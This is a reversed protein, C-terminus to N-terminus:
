LHNPDLLWIWQTWQLTYLLPQNEFPEQFGLIQGVMKRRISRKFHYRKWRQRPISTFCPVGLIEDWFWFICIGGPPRFNWGRNVATECIYAVLKKLCIEFGLGSYKIDICKRAPHWFNPLSCIPIIMWFVPALPFFFYGLVFSGSVLLMAGSMQLIWKPLHSFFLDMHFTSM